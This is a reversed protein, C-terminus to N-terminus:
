FPIKMRSVAYMLLAVAGGIVLVATLGGAFPGLRLLALAV